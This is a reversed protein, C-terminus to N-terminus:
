ILQVLKSFKYLCEADKKRLSPIRFLGPLLSLGFPYIMSLLFSFSADSFLHTQTNRYVACFSALYYWFYFLFLFNLSFFIIIKLKICTKVKSIVDDLNEKKEDVKTKIKIIDKETLSLFLIIFNITVSIVTSYLIKPLQYIFNFNGDDEYIKHM